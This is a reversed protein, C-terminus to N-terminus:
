VLLCGQKNCWHVLKAITFTASPQILHNNLKSYRICTGCEDYKAIYGEQCECRGHECGANHDECVDEEACMKELEVTPGPLERNLHCEFVFCM